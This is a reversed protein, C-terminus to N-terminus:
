NKSNKLLKIFADNKNNDDIKQHALLISEEKTKLNLKVLGAKSYFLVENKNLFELNSLPLNALQVESRKDGTKLDLEFLLGNKTYGWIADAKDLLYAISANFNTKWLKEGNSASLAYVSAETSSTTGFFVKSDKTFIKEKINYQGKELKFEWLISLKDPNIAFLTESEDPIFVNKGDTVPKGYMAKKFGTKYLSHGTKADFSLLYPANQAFVKNGFTLTPLHNYPYDLKYNWILKGNKADISYINQNRSQASLSIAGNVVQASQGKLVIEDKIIGLRSKWYVKGNQNNLAFIEGNIFPIYVTGNEIYFKNNGSIHRDADSANVEWNIKKTKLNMSKLIGNSDYILISNTDLATPKVQTILQDFVMDDMTLINNNSFSKDKNKPASITPPQAVTVKIVLCLLIALQLTSRM